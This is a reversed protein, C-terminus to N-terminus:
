KKKSDKKENTKYRRMRFQARMEKPAETFIKDGKWKSNLGTRFQVEHVLGCDCCKMLYKEMKPMVWESWGGRGAIHNIFKKNKM